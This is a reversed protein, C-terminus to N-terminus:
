KYDIKKVCHVIISWCWMHPLELHSFGKNKINGLIIKHKVSFEHHGFTCSLTHQSLFVSHGSLRALVAILAAHVLAVLWSLLIIGLDFLHCNSKQSRALFHWKTCVVNIYNYYSKLSQGARIRVKRPISLFTTNKHSYQFFLSNEKKSIRNKCNFFTNNAIRQYSRAKMVAVIRDITIPVTSLFILNRSIIQLHPETLFFMETEENICCNKNVYRNKDIICMQACVWFYVLYNCPPFEVLETEEDLAITDDALFCLINSKIRTTSSPLAYKTQDTRDVLGCNLLCKDQESNNHSKTSSRVM